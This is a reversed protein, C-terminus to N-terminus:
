AHPQALLRAAAIRVAKILEDLNRKKHAPPYIPEDPM